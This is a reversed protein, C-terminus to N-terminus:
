HREFLNCWMTIFYACSRSCLERDIVQMQPDRACADQYMIRYRLVEDRWARFAARKEEALPDHPGYPADPVVALDPPLGVIEAM